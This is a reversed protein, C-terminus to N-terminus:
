NKSLVIKDAIMKLKSGESVLEGALIDKETFKALLIERAADTYDRDAHYQAGRERDYTVYIYGNEDEVADPYSVSKREDLLLTYPFTKGDDTSLLATLHSRGVFRYHNVLLINGSRLRKVHFRSNPGGFGCDRAETFTKCGDTSVASAVGCKTRIFMEVSGDLHELLMHEDYWGDAANVAGLREFTKGEDTSRFVHAGAPNGDSGLGCSLLGNKWVACPFLWEGNKTVIPKNLMVDFGLVRVEGFELTEADPDEVISFEVRNQPMVSWIFWLRGLPDIWLTPDYARADAGVDAVAVPKSFTKGDDDSYVLLSYNGMQETIGGSYWTLFIRGKATREISPIGQWKRDSSEHNQLSTKDTILM